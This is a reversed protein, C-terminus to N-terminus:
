LQWFYKIWKRKYIGSKYQQTNKGNQDFNLKYKEMYIFLDYM